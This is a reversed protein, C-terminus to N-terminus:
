EELLINKFPRAHKLITIKHDKNTNINLKYLNFYFEKSYNLVWYKKIVSTSAQNLLGELMERYSKIRDKESNARMQELEFYLNKIKKM